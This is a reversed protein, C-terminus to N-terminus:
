TSVHVFLNRDANEASSTYDSLAEDLHQLVMGPEFHGPQRSRVARFALKIGVSRAPAQLCGNGGCDGAHLDRRRCGFTRRLNDEGSQISGNGRFELRAEGFSAAGHDGIRARQPHLFVNRQDNGLDVRVMDSQDINLSPAFFRAAVHDRVRVARRDAQHHRQRRKM